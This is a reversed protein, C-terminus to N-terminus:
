QADRLASAPDIRAAHVVPISSAGAAAAVVLVAAMAFSVPDAPAIGYLLSRIWPATMRAAALGMSVGAAVMAVTESGIMTAIHPARAGVAMRIGIERRRQAVAYALLGYIGVAALLAALASFISALVATLREGATSADIEENLTHSESLSIAPDLKALAARVPNILSEPRGRARVYINFSDDNFMLEYVTPPAAERMSRYKADRVVGIIQFDPKAIRELANGFTKGVPDTAPFFRQAFAENVVVRVPKAANDSATLNRGSLLPIGLAQFYEPTVMNLSSNLFDATAVRRGVPAYTAKIGSGRMLPRGAAGASVVGPLERVRALLAERLAKSREEPYRNVGPDLTFVAVHDRDFGPNQHHLREFTRVTLGAGSLLVTCLAIQFVILVRRGNWRRSSRAGRLVAELNARSTALAPALGFAIATLVSIATAFLLVRGDIRFEPVVYLLRNARDRMLPLARALLPTATFAVAIGGIAGATGLVGSEILMQRILRAPRAGLALRVAIEERRAANRALILGAVNACVMFLVLGTLGSMLRIAAGFKERVVSVGHELPDLSMGRRLEIEPDSHHAEWWTKTVPRWLALCEQQARALTVGPKLRGAISIADAQKFDAPRDEAPDVLLPLATGSVRIDPELDATIGHFGRPMVGLISFRHAHLTVTSGVAHPNGDFRRLWFNYSLVATGAPDRAGLTRGVLAQAGLVDFFDPTVLNVQVMEPPGPETMPVSPEEQEAFVGALTTSHDRLAAYVDYVFYSQAGLQPSKQVMRVLGEPHRVPLPRLWAADLAAFMVVSAGIGLSLLAAAPISFAPSRAMMRVCYRLDNVPGNNWARLERLDM